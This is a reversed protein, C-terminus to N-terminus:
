IVGSVDVHLFSLFISWIGWTLLPITSIAIFLFVSQLKNEKGSTRFEEHFLLRPGALYLGYTPFVFAAFLLFEFFAGSFILSSGKFQQEILIGWLGGATFVQPLSFRWRNYSLVIVLAVGVYFGVYSILHRLISDLGSYGSAPIGSPGVQNIIYDLAVPIEAVWLLLFIPILLLFWRRSFFPTLIKRLSSRLVVAYLLPYAILLSFLASGKGLFPLFAFATYLIVIFIITKRRGGRSFTEEPNKFAWYLAIVTAANTLLSFTILAM